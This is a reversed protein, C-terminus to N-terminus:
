WYVYANWFAIFALIPPIAAFLAMFLPDFITAERTFQSAAWIFVLLSAVTLYIGAIILLLSIVTM